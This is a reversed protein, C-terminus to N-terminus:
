WGLVSYGSVRHSRAIARTIFKKARRVSDTLSFGRIFYATIAASYTCGTGHTKIGHIFRDSLLLERTGDYFIDVAEKAAPLHGGKALIACGFRSYLERAASRLEDVNRIKRGLFFETEAVNPTLLTARPLLQDCLAKRANAQLLTRGSTSVIVPDVILAPGRHRSFFPAVTRIAAASFLMGTKAAPPQFDALVIELQKRVIAPSCAEIGRVARPTQATISTIVTLGHVGLSAFTKLDAQIGAGGGSDSGAITLAVPLNHRRPM